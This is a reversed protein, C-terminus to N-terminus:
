ARCDRGLREAARKLLLPAFYRHGRRIAPWLSRVYRTDLQIQTAFVTEGPSVVMFLRAHLGALSDLGVACVDPENSLVRWGLVHDPGRLSGFRSGLLVVAAGVWVAQFWRPAHQLFARMWREASDSAPADVRYADQYDVHDLLKLRTASDPVGVEVVHSM